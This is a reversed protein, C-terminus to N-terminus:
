RCEKGVRREESRPLQEIAAVIKASKEAVEDKTLLRRKQSLIERVKKKEQLLKNTPLYRLLDVIVSEFLM